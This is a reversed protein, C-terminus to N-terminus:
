QVRSTSIDIRTPAHNALFLKSCRASHRGFSCWRALQPQLPHETISAVLTAVIEIVRGAFFNGIKYGTHPNNVVRPFM